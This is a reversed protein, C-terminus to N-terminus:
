DAPEATTATGSPPLNEEQAIEGAFALVLEEIGMELAPANGAPEATPAEALGSAQMDFSPRADWEAFQRNVWDHAACAWGDLDAASPFTLGLSAVLSVLAARLAM